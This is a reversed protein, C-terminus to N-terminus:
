KVSLIKKMLEPDEPLPQKHDEIRLDFFRGGWAPQSIDGSVVLTAVSQKGRIDGGEGEAAELAVQMREATDGEAKEIAEFM